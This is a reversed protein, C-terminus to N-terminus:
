PIFWKDKGGSQYPHLWVAQLHRKRLSHPMKKYVLTGGALSICNNIKFVVLHSLRCLVGWKVLCQSVQPFYTDHQFLVVRFCAGCPHGLPYFAQYVVHLVSVCEYGVVLLVPCKPQRFGGQQGVLCVESFIIVDCSDCAGYGEPVHFQLCPFRGAPFRGRISDRISVM